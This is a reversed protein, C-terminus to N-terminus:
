TPKSRQINSQNYQTVSKGFDVIQNRVFVGKRTLESDLLATKSQTNVASAFSM